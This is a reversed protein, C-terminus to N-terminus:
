AKSQPLNLEARWDELPREWADELRCGVVCEAALGMEFGRSIAHLLGELPEDDQLTKLMGGFILLV